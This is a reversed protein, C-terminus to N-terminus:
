LSHDQEFLRLGSPEHEAKHQGPGQLCRLWGWGTMALAEAKAACSEEDLDQGAQRPGEPNCGQGLHLSQDEWNPTM